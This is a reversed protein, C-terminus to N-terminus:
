FTVARLNNGLECDLMPVFGVGALAGPVNPALGGGAESSSTLMAPSRSVPHDRRAEHGTDVGDEM